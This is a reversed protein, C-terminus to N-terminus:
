GPNITIGFRTSLWAIIVGVTIKWANGFFAKTSGGSQKLLAVDTGIQTQAAQLQNFRLEDQKTHTLLSDKLEAAERLATEQAQRVLKVEGFVDSITVKGM